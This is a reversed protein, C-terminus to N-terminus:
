TLSSTTNVNCIITGIPVTAATNIKSYIDALTANLDNYSNTKINYTSFLNTNMTEM